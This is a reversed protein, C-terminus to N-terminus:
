QKPKTGRLAVWQLRKTFPIRLLCIFGRQEQHHTRSMSSRTRLCLCFRSAPQEATGLAETLPLALLRSGAASLKAGLGPSQVLAYCAYPPPSRPARYVFGRIWRTQLPQTLFPVPLRWNPFQNQCNVKRKSPFVRERRNGEPGM